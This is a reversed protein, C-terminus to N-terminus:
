RDLMQDLGAYAEWSKTQGWVKDKKKLIKNVCNKFLELYKVPKLEMASALTLLHAQILSAINLSM